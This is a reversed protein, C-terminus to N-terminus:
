GELNLAYGQVAILALFFQWQEMRVDNDLAAIIVTIQKTFGAPTFQLFPFSLFL